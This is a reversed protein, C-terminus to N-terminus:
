ELLECMKGITQHLNVYYNLLMAVSDTFCFVRRNESNPFAIVSVRLTFFKILNDFNAMNSMHTRVEGGGWGRM